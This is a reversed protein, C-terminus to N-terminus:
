VTLQATRLASIPSKGTSGPVVNARTSSTPLSPMGPLLPEAGQSGTSLAASGGSLVTALEERGHQQPTPGSAPVSSTEPDQAAALM